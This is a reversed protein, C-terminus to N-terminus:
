FNPTDKVDWFVRTAYTDPGGIAEIGSTQIDERGAALNNHPLMQRHILEGEALSANPDGLSVNLVPFIKPYGTRRIDTWAEYSYPFIAIYKQTIIKELKTENDDAENWKVGIKTVSEINNAADLPDVYQYPIAEELDMYNLEALYSEYNGTPFGFRDGCDANKIGREYFDKATGGMSWNRLAGEARLFDVEAWKCAYINMYEFDEGEFKSYAVRKNSTYQQTDFMRLGARLGIKESNAPVDGLIDSNLGIMYHYYPHNLSALLSVFSANVRSDNWSSQIAKLPHANYCGTTPNLGVEDEKSEVVGSAVAEEAWKQANAADYKVMHMAMRLKLSNAFRKWTQISKTQTLGDWDALIANIRDKYWQPRSEFNDFVIIMDDINKIITSYIEAGSLFTFPNAEKNNKHDQYAVSGYIDTVEQAVYDFLLLAIAKIEVINNTADNNLLNGLNNKMSLFRGHPGESFDTKYSYAHEFSGGWNQDCTTYGAYTDVTLNYVYQWQHEAPMAGDKGGMLYYQATLFMGFENTLANITSDVVEETPDTIELNDADGHLPEPRLEKDTADNFEDGPNDFDMFDSCSSFAVLSLAALGYKFHNLKM